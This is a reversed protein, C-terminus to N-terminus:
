LWGIKKAQAIANEITLSIVPAAELPIVLQQESSKIYIIKKSDVSCLSIETKPMAATDVTGIVVSETSKLGLPKPSTAKVRTSKKKVKRQTPTRYSRPFEYLGKNLADLYFINEAGYIKAFAIRTTKLNEGISNKRGIYVVASRMIDKNYIINQPLAKVTTRLAKLYYISDEAEQERAKLAANMANIFDNDDLTTKAINYGIDIILSLYSINLKM